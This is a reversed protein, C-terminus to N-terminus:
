KRTDLETINGKEGLNRQLKYENLARREASGGSLQKMVAANVEESLGDEQAHSMIGNIREKIENRKVPDPERDFENHAKVMQETYIKKVAKIRDKSLYLMGFDEYAQPPVGMLQLLTGTKTIDIFQNGRSDYIKGTTWAFYAREATNYSSIQKALDRLVSSNLRSPDPNFGANYAQAYDIVTDLAGSGTSGAPGLLVELVTTRDDTFSEIIQNAWSGLGGRAAFNTDEGTAAMVLGDIVGNYLTKNLVDADSKALGFQEVMFDSLYGAMPIGASGYMVLYAAVLRSRETKSLGKSPFLMADLARLPYSQFQTVLGLFGSKLGQQLDARTMGLTLTNTRQVIYKRADKSDIDLGKPNINGANAVWERVSTSYATIRPVLEGEEFFIRGKDSVKEFSGRVLNDGRAANEYVMNSGFNDFGHHRFEMFFKNMDGFGKMGLKESKKAFEKIVAPDQSAIAMRVIPYTMLAKTGHVPSMAAIMPAHVAQILMAPLSFLGLKINFVLGRVRGIPDEKISPALAKGIKNKDIWSINEPLKGLAWEINNEIRQIQGIEKATKTGIVERAFQQEGEIKQIIDYPVKLETRVKADLLNIRPDTPRVNLFKRYRELYSLTYDRYASFAATNATAAFNQNLSAIANLPGEGEPSVHPVVESGRASLRGRSVEQFDVDDIYENPLGEEIIKERNRLPVVKTNLDMGRAEVNKLYDKVNDVGLVLREQLFDEAKKLIDPNTARERLMANLVNINDAERRAQNFTTARFLTKDNKRFGKGNEYRGVNAQKLFVTDADYRIRGGALYKLQRPALPAIEVSNKLVAIYPTPSDVLKSMGNAVAKDPVKDVRIVDYNDLFDKPLNNKNLTEGLEDLFIYDNEPFDTVIKGNIDSGFVSKDISGYGKAKRKDYLLKNDLEYQFDNLLRYGAFANMEKVTAPRDYMARYQADIEKPTFWTNIGEDEVKMRQLDVIPLMDNMEKKNLAGLSNEYVKQGQKTIQNMTNESIQAYVLLDDDVWSEVRGLYRRLASVGQTSLNADKVDLSPVNTKIAWGGNELQYPEGVFGKRKIGSKASKESVYPNGGKTFIFVDATGDSKLQVDNISGNSYEVKLKNKIGDFMDLAQVEDYSMGTFNDLVDNLMRQNLSYAKRVASPLGKATDFETILGSSLGGAEETSNVVKNTGNVIDEAVDETAGLDLAAKSLGSKPLITAANGILGKAIFLSDAFDIANLLGATRQGVVGERFAINLEGSVFASNDGLFQSAKILAESEDMIKAAESADARELKAQLKRMEEPYDIIGMGFSRQFFSVLSVESLLNLGVDTYDTKSSLEELKNSVALQKKSRQSMNEFFSRDNEYLFGTVPNDKIRTEITSIVEEELAIRNDERKNALGKLALALMETDQEQSLMSTFRDTEKQQNVISATQRIQKATKQELTALEMAKNEELMQSNSIVLGGQNLLSLSPKTALVIDQTEPIIQKVKTNDPIIM